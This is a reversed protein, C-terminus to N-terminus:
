FSFSLYFQVFFLVVSIKAAKDCDMMLVFRQVTKADNYIQTIGWRLFTGKEIKLYYVALDSLSDNLLKNQDITVKTYQHSESFLSRRLNYILKQRLYFHFFRQNKTQQM